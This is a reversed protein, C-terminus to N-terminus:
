LCFLLSFFVYYMALCTCLKSLLSCVIRSFPEFYEEIYYSTMAVFIKLPVAAIFIQFSMVLISSFFIAFCNSNMYIMYVCPEEQIKSYFSFLISYGASSNIFATPHLVFYKNIKTNSDSYGARGPRSAPSKRRDGPSVSIETYM